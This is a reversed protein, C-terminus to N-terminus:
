DSKESFTAENWPWIKRNRQIQSLQVLNFDRSKKGDNKPNESLVINCHMQKWKSWTTHMFFILFNHMKEQERGFSFNGIQM